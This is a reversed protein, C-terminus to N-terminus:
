LSLRRWMYVTLYPPMNNHPQSAGADGTDPGHIIDSTNSWSTTGYSVDHAEDVRHRVTSRAIQVSETYTPHYLYETTIHKHNPMEDETLTHNAEGGTSGAIYNDGAALLFVDKIQEWTGGLIEAPSTSELSMYISGVPYTKKLVDNRVYEAMDDYIGTADTKNKLYLVLTELDRYSIDGISTNRSLTINGTATFDNLIANSKNDSTTSKQLHGLIVPKSNDNDEFGVFVIDGKAVTNSTGNLTCITAERLEERSNGYASEEIGDLTPIRVKILYPTVIDEVIGKTIM